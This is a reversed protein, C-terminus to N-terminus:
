ARLRRSGVFTAIMLLSISLLMLMGFAPTQMVNISDRLSLGGANLSTITFILGYREFTLSALIQFLDFRISLFNLTGIAMLYAFSLLNPATQNKAFSSILLGLAFYGCTQFIMTGWFLLSSIAAPQIAAAVVASTGLALGGHVVAKSAVFEFYNAPTLLLARLAGREREQATLSVLLGCGAFFHIATLLSTGILSVNLVDAVSVDELASRTATASNAPQEPAPLPEITEFFQPMKGFHEISVSLFWRTVPWLVNPDSGPHRYNIRRRIQKRDMFMAPERIEIVCVSPPYSETDFQRAEVFRIGLSAPARKKLLAIWDRNDEARYVIWAKESPPQSQTAQKVPTSSQTEQEVLGSSAVLLAVIVFLGLLMLAPGNHLLRAMDKRVLALIVYPRLRAPVHTRSM